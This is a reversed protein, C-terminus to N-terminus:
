GHEAGLSTSEFQAAKVPLVEGLAALLEDTTIADPQTPLLQPSWAVTQVRRRCHRPGVLNEHFAESRGPPHLVAVRERQLARSPVEIVFVAPIRGPRFGLDISLQD